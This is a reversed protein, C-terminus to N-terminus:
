RRYEDDDEITGINSNRTNIIIFKSNENGKMVYENYEKYDIQNRSKTVLRYKLVKQFIANFLKFEYSAGEVVIIVPGVNKKMNIKLSKTTDLCEM